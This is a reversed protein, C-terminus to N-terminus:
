ANTGVSSASAKRLSMSETSPSPLQLIKCIRGYPPITIAHHDPIIPHVYSPVYSPVTRKYSDEQRLVPCVPFSFRYPRDKRIQRKDCFPPCICFSRGWNRNSDVGERPRPLLKGEDMSFESRSHSLRRKVRNKANSIVCYCGCKLHDQVTVLEARNQDFCSKLCQCDSISYRRVKKIQKGHLCGAKWPRLRLNLRLPATKQAAPVFSFPLVPVHKTSTM